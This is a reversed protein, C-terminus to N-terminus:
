ATEKPNVAHKVSHNFKGMSNNGVKKRHEDLCENWYFEQTKEIRKKQRCENEIETNEEKGRNKM